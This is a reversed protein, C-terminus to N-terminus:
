GGSEGTRFGSPLGRACDYVFVSGPAVSPLPALPDLNDPPITTGGDVPRVVVTPPPPPETDTPVADPDDPDVPPLTTTTTTTTTAGPVGPLTGSVVTALCENGPLYLRAARRPNPEPPEWDLHPQGWLAADMFAKWIAAPFTGGQVRSVGAASFEPINVM